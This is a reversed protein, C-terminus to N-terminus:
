AKIAKLAQIESLRSPGRDEHFSVFEVRWKQLQSPTVQLAVRWGSLTVAKPKPERLKVPVSEGYKALRVRRRDSLRDLM